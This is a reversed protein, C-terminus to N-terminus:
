LMSQGSDVSNSKLLALVPWALWRYVPSGSECHLSFITIICLKSAASCSTWVILSNLALDFKRILFYIGPCKIPSIHCWFLVVHESYCYSTWSYWFVYNNSYFVQINNIQSKKKALLTNKLASGWFRWSSYYDSYSSIM